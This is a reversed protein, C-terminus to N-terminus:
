CTQESKAAHVHKELQTPKWVELSVALRSKTTGDLFSGCEQPRPSSIGLYAPSSLLKSATM